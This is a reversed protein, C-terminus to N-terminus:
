FRVGGGRSARDSEKAELRSLLGLAAQYSCILEFCFSGSSSCYKVGVPALMLENHLLCVCVRVPFLLFSEPVCFVLSLQLKKKYEEASGNILINFHATM